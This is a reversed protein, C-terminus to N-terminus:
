ANLAVAFSSSVQLPLVALHAAESRSSALIASEAPLAVVVVLSTGRLTAGPLTVLLERELAVTLINQSSKTSSKNATRANM